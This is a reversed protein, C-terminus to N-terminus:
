GQGRDRRHARLERARVRLTQFYETDAIERVQEQKRQHDIQISLDGVQQKLNKNEGALAACAADLERQTERLDEITQTLRFERAELQVVMMGFAEALETVVVPQGADGTMRFLADIKGFSGAAVEKCLGSLTAILDFLPDDAM